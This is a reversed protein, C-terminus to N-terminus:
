KMNELFSIRGEHMKGSKTQGQVDYGRAEFVFGENGGILFNFRIDNLDKSECENM